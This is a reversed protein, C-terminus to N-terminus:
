AHRHILLKLHLIMPDINSRSTEDYFFKSQSPNISVLLSEKIHRENIGVDFDFNKENANDPVFM